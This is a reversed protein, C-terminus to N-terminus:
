FSLHVGVGFQPSFRGRFIDEYSQTAYVGADLDLVRSVYLDKAIGLGARDRTTIADLSWGATLSSHSRGRVGALEFAVSEQPVGGSVLVGYKTEFPLKGLTRSLFGVTPDGKELRGSM